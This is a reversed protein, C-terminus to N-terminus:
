VGPAATLVGATVAADLVAHDTTDPRRLCALAFDTLAHGFTDTGGLCAAVAIRDGSRVHARALTRDCRAAYGRLGKPDMAAIAASGKMGRLRRRCFARFQPGRRRLPLPRPPAPAGRHPRTVPPPLGPSSPAPLRTPCM